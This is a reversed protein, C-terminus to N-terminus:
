TYRAHVPAPGSQTACTEHTPKPTAGFCDKTTRCKTLLSHTLFLGRDRPCTQGCAPRASGPSFARNFIERECFAQRRSVSIAPAGKRHRASSSTISCNSRYFNRPKPWVDQSATTPRARRRTAPRIITYSSWPMLPTRLRLGFFKARILSARM